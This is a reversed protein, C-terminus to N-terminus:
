TATAGRAAKASSGLQELADACLQRAATNQPDAFVLINTIQAVWQYEGHDFDEKARQLMANADGLYDVMKKAFDEPPLEHLHVPNADYWGMFRQYVAKADHAVTGYYQRTYWNQELAAPLTIEHAIEASLKGNNLMSLAQDNIFKYMAATNVMYDNVAANGWHPWNRSQFTVEVESGYLAVAETICKAWANGDRVQAGRLTYLNHLTGTCNEAVWLARREPIWTNMEAPAETGPTLQFQMRVGDITLWEGSTAVEYTPRIFSTKGASQGNGIGMALSGQPGKDLYGSYQYAARRSMAYGAYTNESVAHELLGTPVIIPIKGSALQEEVPANRDAAEDASMIGKIGGYHDIHPHSVIVARVPRGGLHENALALAAQSCEVSMLTDFVIWGTEGEVLTLNSMDYGRVQYIGDVVKFLGYVHNNRTDEWLSPNACDPPTPTKSSHMPRRRGSSTATPTRSKWRMPRPSLTARPTKTSAKEAFNLKDYWAKNAQVTADTAGKQNATFSPASAAGSTGAACEPLAVSAFVGAGALAMRGLFERRGLHLQNCTECM